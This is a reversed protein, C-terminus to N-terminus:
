KKLKPTIDYIVLEDCLYMPDMNDQDLKVKEYKWDIEKLLDFFEKEEEPKRIEYSMIISPINGNKNNTAIFNVISSLAYILAKYLEKWAICDAIIIYDFMSDFKYYHKKMFDQLAKLEKDDDWTLEKSLILCQEKQDDNSKNDDQQEEKKISYFKYFNEFLNKNLLPIACDKDTFLLANAGLKISIMGVLGTGSGIELISKNEILSKYNKEFYKSLVIGADWVTAGIGGSWIGSPDQHIDLKSINLKPDFEYERIFTKKEKVYEPENEKAKQETAMTCVVFFCASLCYYAILRLFHLM